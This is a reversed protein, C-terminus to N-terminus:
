MLVQSFIYAGQKDRYVLEGFYVVSFYISCRQNEQFVINYYLSEVSNDLRIGEFIAQCWLLRDFVPFFKHLAPKRYYQYLLGFARTFGQLPM